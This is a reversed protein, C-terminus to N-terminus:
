EHQRSGCGSILVAPVEGTQNPGPRQHQQGAASSLQQKTIPSMGVAPLLQLPSLPGDGGPATVNFSDGDIAAIFEVALLSPRATLEDWFRLRTLVGSNRRSDRVSVQLAM